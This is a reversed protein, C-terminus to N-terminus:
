RRPGDTQRFSLSSGDGAAGNTDARPTSTRVAPVPTRLLLFVMAPMLVSLMVGPVAIGSDNLAYGLVAAAAIGILCARLAPLRAQVAAFRDPARRWAYVALLAIPVITFRWLSNSLTALNADIKRNIVTTFDGSGIREFLRGLHTRQSPDRTLDLFGLAVVAGIAGLGWLLVTRFRLRWGALLTFTLGFAPLGALVGGVDAGWPPAGDVLAVAVFLAAVAALAARTRRPALFAALLLAGVMLQSFTVNNVGSFRGAVVPSDGFVTSLQLRSDLAVVSIAITVIMFALVPVLPVYGRPRILSLAGGIVLGLGLTFAYYAATPWDRFPLLAAWYTLPLTAIFGLAIPELVWWSRGFRLCVAAVCGFLLVAIIFTTHFPTIVGDRFGANEDATILFDIRQQPTGGGRAVSVPRGEIDQEALPTGALEAITPAVDGITVFGAQRTVGSDLLGARLGPARVALMTLHPAGTQPASPAVLVVADRSPDVHRLLRGVLDDTRVLAAHWMAHLRAGSLASAYSETRALDSGEVLVVSRPTWCRMMAREVARPDLAIGFAARANHDLLETGVAGCPVQGDSGMLALVAERHLASRDPSSPGTDANAVVGRQVGEKALADGLAAVTARYRSHRNAGQIAVLQLQAAAGRMPTGHEREYVAAADDAELAEKPEFAQGAVTRPAVARTGSGITAYGDGVPTKLQKVRVALDAVASDDIVSRLNPLDGTAIDKWTVGPLSIVLVRRTAPLSDSAAASAASASPAAFGCVMVVVAAAAAACLARKM